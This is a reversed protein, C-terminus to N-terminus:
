DEDPATEAEVFIRQVEPLAAKIEADITAVAVEITETSQGDRFEVSLNVLIFDPGMHMTLVENLRLVGPRRMAIRGIEARVREDAAEGILLGKTEYALWVATGALILGIVVAAAGDLWALGTARSLAIGAFAVLLGLMAASDEFLVVFLSPDKGRRVAEFVGLSGRARSFERWAFFWAAGEFLFALGLVVYSVTPDDIPSPHLIHSVGEYISVGAGVAFVSLAVVFSWFYIEKGHGFPFEEDPPRRACRLGHLLLLQNGTDVVSHVAESLMASSGTMSAAVFKIVAIASNGLLAAYIVRKPGSAM